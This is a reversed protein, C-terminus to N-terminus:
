SDAEGERTGPIRGPVLPQQTIRNATDIKQSEYLGPPHGVRGFRYVLASGSYEAFGNTWIKLIQGGSAEYLVFFVANGGDKKKV